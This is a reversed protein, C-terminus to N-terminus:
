YIKHKRLKWFNFLNFSDRTYVFLSLTQSRDKVLCQVKVPKLTKKESEKREKKREKEEL